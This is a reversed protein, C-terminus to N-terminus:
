IAALLLATTALINRTGANNAAATKPSEGTKGIPFAVEM